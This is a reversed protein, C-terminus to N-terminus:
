AQCMRLDLLLIASRAQHSSMGTSLVDTVNRRVRARGAGATRYLCRFPPGCAPIVWPATNLTIVLQVGARKSKYHGAATGRSKFASAESRAMALHNENKGSANLIQLEDTM